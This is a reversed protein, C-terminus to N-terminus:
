KFIKLYDSDVVFDESDRGEYLTYFNNPRDNVLTKTPNLTKYRLNETISKSGFGPGIWIGADSVNPLVFKKM